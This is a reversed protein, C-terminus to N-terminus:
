KQEKLVALLGYANGKAKFMKVELGCTTDGAVEFPVVPTADTETDRAIVEDGETLAVDIDEANQDGWGVLAYKGEHFTRNMALEGGTGFLGGMLCALGPSKDTKVGTKQEVEACVRALETAAAVLAKGSGEAGGEELIIFTCFDPEGSGTFNTMTIRITADAKAEIHVFPTNDDETDEVTAEGDTVSLDLDKIDRDGAGVFLYGKGAEVQMEYELTQGTALWGGLLSFTNTAAGYGTYSGATKAQEVAATVCERIYVTDDEASAASATLLGALMASALSVRIM